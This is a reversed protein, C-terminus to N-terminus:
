TVISGPVHQGRVASQRDAPASPAEGPVIKLLPPGLSEANAAIMARREAKRELALARARPAARMWEVAVSGCGAGVDWLLQGAVPMLAALTAARVERKTLQGDHRFAEDPLGPTRPLLQAAPGAVCDVALTNLDALDNASWHAATADVRRERPGDRHELVSLRSEGYGRSIPLACTQVGTVLACSTHRIRSSFFFFFFFFFLLLVTVLLYIYTM